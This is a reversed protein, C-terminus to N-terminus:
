VIVNKLQGELAFATASKVLVLLATKRRLSVCTNLYTTIRIDAWAGM